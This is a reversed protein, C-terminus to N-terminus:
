RGQRGRFQRLWGGGRGAAFLLLLRFRQRRLVGPIKGFGHQSSHQAHCRCAANRRQQEAKQHSLAFSPPVTATSREQVGSENGIQRNSYIKSNKQSTFVGGRLCFPAANQQIHLFHCSFNILFLRNSFVLM